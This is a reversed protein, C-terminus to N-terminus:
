CLEDAHRKISFFVDSAKQALARAKEDIGENQRSVVFLAIDDAWAIPVNQVGCQAFFDATDADERLFSALEQTIECVAAHFMADALPSGPRTGKCTQLEHDYCRAWNCSGFERLLTVLIPDAGIQELYGQGELATEIQEIPIGLKLINEKIVAVEDSDNVQKGFVLQRILSHFATKLDLFVVGSAWGKRYAIKQLSRIFQSGFSPEQGPFGGIQGVLKERQLAKILQPRYWAHIQKAIVSMLMIPRYSTPLFCSGTKPIMILSGGKFQFAETQWLATKMAVIWVDKALFDAGYHLWNSSVNDPGGAKRPHSRRLLQEIEVLSPLNELSVALQDIENQKQICEDYLQSFPKPIAAEIEALHEEWLANLPEIKGPDYGRRRASFKPLYRRIEAWFERMGKSEQEAMRTAFSAYFAEDDRRVLTTVQLGLRRFLQEAKGGELRLRKMNRISEYTEDRKWANFFCRLTEKRVHWKRSFYIRRQHQKKQILSWTDDQFYSKRPKRQEITPATSRSARQWKQTLQHVQSHVDLKWDIPQTEQKLAECFNKRLQYHSLDVRGIEKKRTRNKLVRVPGTFDVLIPKHDFLNDSTALEPAVRSHVHHRRWELPLSIYDIRSENGAPHVFTAADGFHCTEVTSPLWQQTNTLFQHLLEGTWNEEDAQHGEVNESCISGVRANADVATILPWGQCHKQVQDNLEQWWWTVDAPACGTHPAHAAIICVRLNSADFKVILTQNTRHVLKVDEPRLLSRLDRSNGVKYHRSLAIIIGGQGKDDATVQLLSYWPNSDAFNRRHRTEQLIVIHCEAEHFKRLTEEIKSIKGKRKKNTKLTNVNYSAIKLHIKPFHEQIPSNNFEDLDKKLDNNACASPKTVDIFGKKSVYDPQYIWWLWKVVKCVQPSVLHDWFTTSTAFNQGAFSAVSDAAENGPQGRHAKVHHSQVQVHWREQLTLALSRAVLFFTNNCDGSVEGIAGLAAAWADYHFHIEPVNGWNMSQVKIEDFAWKFALISALLEADYASLPREKEPTGHHAFGGYYWHGSLEVFLVVGCGIGKESKSGDIYFHLSDAAQTIWIPYNTWEESVPKWAFGKPFYEPLTMHNSFWKEFKEVHRMDIYTNSSEDTEFPLFNEYNGLLGSVSIKCPHERHNDSECDISNEEFHGFRQLPLFHQQGWEVQEHFAEDQSDAIENEEIAAFRLGQCFADYYPNQRRGPSAQQLFSLIFPNEHCRDRLRTSTGEEIFDVEEDFKVTGNGPPPLRIMESAAFSPRLYTQLSSFSDGSDEDVRRGGIGTRHTRWRDEAECLAHGQQVIQWQFYMPIHEQMNPIAVEAFAGDFVHWLHYDQTKWPIGMMTILCGRPSDCFAALGVQRLFDSRRLPSTILSVERWADSPTPQDSQMPANVPFVNVDLLIAIKEQKSDLDELIFGQITKTELDTPNPRVQYLAYSIEADFTTSSQVVSMVHEFLQYRQHGGTIFVTPDDQNRRYAYATFFQRPIMATGTTMLSTQDWVDDTAIIAELDIRNGKRLHLIDRPQFNIFDKTCDCNYIDQTCEVDMGFSNLLAQCTVESRSRFSQMDANEGIEGYYRLVKAVLTPVGGINPLINVILHLADQDHSYYPPPQPDVYIVEVHEHLQVRHLLAQRIFQVFDQISTCILTPVRRYITELHRMGLVYFYVPVGEEHFQECLGSLEDVISDESDLHTYFFAAQRDLHRDRENTEAIMQRLERLEHSGDRMQIRAFHNRSLETFDKTKM